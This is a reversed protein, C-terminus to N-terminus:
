HHQGCELVWQWHGLFSRRVPTGGWCRRKLESLEQLVVQREAGQAAEGFRQREVPAPLVPAAPDGSRHIYDKSVVGKLIHVNLVNCTQRLLDRCRVQIDGRLVQYRYKTSWVLHVQLNHVSHSGTRQKM